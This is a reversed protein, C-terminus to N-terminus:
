NAYCIFANLAVFSPCISVGNLNSNPDLQQIDTGTTNLTIGTPSRGTSYGAPGTTSEKLLQYDTSFPLTDTLVVYHEHGNDKIGHAHPPMQTLVPMDVGGYVSYTNDAGFYGNGTFLNSAVTSPQNAGVVFRSTFDPLGFQDLGSSAGYTYEVVGWLDLYTDVDVLRGDCLLYNAPSTSQPLFLVSGFINTTKAQLIDYKTQLASIQQSYLDYEDELPTISNEVDDVELNVYEQSAISKPEDPNTQITVNYFTQPLNRQGISSTFSMYILLLFFSKKIDCIGVNYPNQVDSYTKIDTKIPCILSIRQNQVDFYTKTDTKIDRIGLNRPNQVTFYTKIDCIVTNGSKQVDFYTKTNTKIDCILPIRQNQVDSYTKTVTKIDRIGDIIPNQVDSYTKIDRIGRNPPNQVDSYTKIDCFVVNNNNQVDFYTKIDPKIDRIGDIVPNNADFNNTIFTFIPQYIHLACM